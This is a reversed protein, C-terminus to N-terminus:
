RSVKSQGGECGKDEGAMSETNILNIHSGWGGGGVM